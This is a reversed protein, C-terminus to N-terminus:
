RSTPLRGSPRQGTTPDHRAPAQEDALARLAALTEIEDQEAGHDSLKVIVTDHDRNVYIYQGYVGIAALDRDPGPVHWWQGSYDFGDVQHPAPRDLRAIWSQPVIRTGGAIGGGLVLQGIRAFDEATANICCFAKEHGGSRDLNWTAAHTAGLPAWLGTELLSGLTQHRARALVLGLLETDVSRYVGRSGPTFALRVDSRVFRDLDRTLFLGTTGSVPRWPSYTEPVAVGSSMDLLDRVTIRPDAGAAALDPLLDVLRDEERLVGDGVAEGVLLSLISKAVSWSALRTGADVGPRYWQQVLVGHRLVLFAATRTERLFRGVPVVDGKWPVGAPWPAPQTPWPRPHPSAPVLRAPFLGGVRSHPNLLIRLLTVPDAISMALTAAWPVGLLLAAGVLLPAIRSRRRRPRRRM